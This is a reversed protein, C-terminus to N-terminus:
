EKTTYSVNEYYDFTTKEKRLLFYTKTYGQLQEIDEASWYLPFSKTNPLFDLYESFL